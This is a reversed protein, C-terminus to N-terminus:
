TLSSMAGPLRSGLFHLLCIRMKQYKSLWYRDALASLTGQAWCSGCYQPIHQNVSWSLYNRGSVNRWDWNEPLDSAMVTHQPLPSRVRHGEEYMAKRVRCAKAHRSVRYKNRRKEKRYNKLMKQILVYVNEVLKEGRTLYSEPQLPFTM